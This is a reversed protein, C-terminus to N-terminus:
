VSALRRADSFARAALLGAKYSGIVAGTAAAAIVSWRQPEDIVDGSRSREFRYAVFGLTYGLAEFVPHLELHPHLHLM